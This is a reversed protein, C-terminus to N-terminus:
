AFSESSFRGGPRLRQAQGRLLDAAHMAKKGPMQLEVLRLAGSGCAVDIGADSCALITGPEGQGVVPQARWIKVREQEFFSHAGPVPNLARVWLDLEAASMAWDLQAQRSSIKGAYTAQAEDQQVASAYIAPIEALVSRLLPRGLDVLKDHLSGATDEATIPTSATALIDGTDLGTDMKMITVGTESDGAALSHQIPAAGRWRPLLSAHVNICGHTPIALVEAPLLLGYAVVVMLDPQLQRLEELAEPDRLSAPQYVPLQHAEAYAKVPGAGPKKGRGAPRDPQTYVGKLEASGSEHIDQLFAKAFQPTGAFVLKM